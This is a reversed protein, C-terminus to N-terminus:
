PRPRHEVTIRQVSWYSRETHQGTFEGSEGQPLSCLATGLNHTCADMHAEASCLKSPESLPRSSTLLVYTDTSAEGRTRFQALTDLQPLTYAEVPLKNKDGDYGFLFNMGGRNNVSCLYVFRPDVKVQQATTLRLAYIDEDHTTDGERLVQGVRAPKVKAAQLVLEMSYPFSRHDEPPSTLTLWRFQRLLNRAQGPLEETGVWKSRPTLAKRLGALPQVFAFRPESGFRGQLAFDHPEKPEVLQISQSLLEDELKKKAAEDIPWEVALVATGPLRGLLAATQIRMGLEVSRRDSQTVLQWGSQGYHLRHTAPERDEDETLHAGRRQILPRLAAAAQALELGSLPKDGLAIRLPQQTSTGYHVVRLSEGIQISSADGEKVSAISSSLDLVQNVTLILRNSGPRELQAGIGLGLALGEGLLIGESTKQVVTVFAGAQPAAPGGFLPRRRRDATAELKPDQQSGAGSSARVFAAASRRLTEVSDDPQNLYLARVLGVTFIGHHRNGFRREQACQTHDAASLIVAGRTAPPDPLPPLTSVPFRVPEAERTHVADASQQAQATADMTITGSHCSDFAAVLEGGRDLVQNLLRHLEKDHIDPVRRNRDAPVITEDWGDPSLRNELRSGHGAFYLLVQDGKHTPDILFSKMADLIGARTAQDNRLICLEQDQFGFRARLVKAVLEVDNVAGSLDSVVGEQISGRAPLYHDIGILLARRQPGSGRRPPICQSVQLPVVTIGGPWRDEPQQKKPECDKGCKEDRTAAESRTCRPMSGTLETDSLIVCLSEGTQVQDLSIFSDDEPVRHSGAPLRLPGKIPYLARSEQQAPSHMVYVFSDKPVQIRLALQDTQSLPNKAPLVMTQQDRKVELQLRLGSCGMLGFLLWVVMCRALM